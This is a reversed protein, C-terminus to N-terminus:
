EAIRAYRRQWSYALRALVGSFTYILAIAALVYQSFFVLSYLFLGLLVIWRFGHTRDLNIEKGSWFRWTSVMLFGVSGVYVM